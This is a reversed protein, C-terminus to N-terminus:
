AEDSWTSFKAERGGLYLLERLGGAIERVGSPRVMVGVLSVLCAAKMVM